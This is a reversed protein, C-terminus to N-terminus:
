KPLNIVENKSKRYFLMMKGIKQVFFCNLETEIISQLQNLDGDFSQLIHIKILEHATLAKDLGDILNESVNNKGIQFIAKKKQGLSKLYKIQNKTLTDM